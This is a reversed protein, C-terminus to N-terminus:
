KPPLYSLDPRAKGTKTELKRCVAEGKAWLERGEDGLTEWMKENHTEFDEASEAWSASYMLPLDRGFEGAFFNYSEAIKKAGFLKVFDKALDLIESELGPKVYYINWYFFGANEAPVRPNAPAYSLDYRLNVVNASMHDYTGVFGKEVEMYADGGKKAAEMFGTNIGDISAYSEIPILFYYCHDDTSYAERGISLDHKKYLAIEKLMGAEFAAANEASSVCEYLLFLQSQPEQARILPVWLLLTMFCMGGFAGFIRNKM